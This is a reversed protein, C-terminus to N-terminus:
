SNRLLRKLGEKLSYSPSFGLSTIKNIDAVSFKIDGPREKEFLIPPLSPVLEKFTDLVQLLSTQKGSGLNYVKGNTEKKNSVLILAKIVDKVYIFDRTQTGDGYIVIQTNIGSLHKKIRDVFISIVGSYPSSPSQREGFVNFFRLAVTPLGYLEYANLVYRESAYKDVAYPTLPFVPMDEKKPLEKYDGYVAASSAFIFKSPSFKKSAELLNLTGDFNTQHTEVPNVISEQVSAVAALHFVKSPKFEQFISFILNRDRIDGKIFIINESNPLNSLSGTSLNDLVIIKHKKHLAEVLHSGIFGAGGTILIREIRM